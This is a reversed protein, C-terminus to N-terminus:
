GNRTELFARTASLLILAPNIHNILRVIGGGDFLWEILALFVQISYVSLLFIIIAIIVMAVVSFVSV